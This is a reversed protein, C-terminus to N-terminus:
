FRNGPLVNELLHEQLASSYNDNHSWTGYGAVQKGFMKSATTYIGVDTGAACVVSLIRPLWAVLWPYDIQLIKLLQYPIAFLLPFCITRLGVAWEWTLHGYRCSVSTM